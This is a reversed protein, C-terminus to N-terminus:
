LDDPDFERYFSSAQIRSTGGQTFPGSLCIFRYGGALIMLPLTQAADYPLTGLYESRAGRM